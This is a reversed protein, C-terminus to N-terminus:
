IAFDHYILPQPIFASRVFDFVKEYRQLSQRFSKEIRVWVM